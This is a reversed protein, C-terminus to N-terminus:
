NLIKTRLITYFNNIKSMQIIVTYGRAIQNVLITIKNNNNKKKNTIVKFIKIFTRQDINKTNIPITTIIM